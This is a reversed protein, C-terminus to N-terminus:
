GRVKKWATRVVVFAALGAAVKVAISKAQPTLAGHEDTAADKAQAFLEAGREHAVRAQTAARQKADDLSDRAQAKVDLKQSLADVTDGLEARTAEIDAVLEEASADPGPRPGRPGRTPAPIEPRDPTTM